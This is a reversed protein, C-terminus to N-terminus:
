FLGFCLIYISIQKSYHTKKQQMCTRGIATTNIQDCYQEQFRTTIFGIKEVIEDTNLSHSMHFSHRDPM